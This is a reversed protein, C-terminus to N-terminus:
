SFTVKRPAEPLQVAQRFTSQAQTTQGLDLQAKGLRNLINPDAPGRKLTETYLRISEEPDGKEYAIRAQIEYIDAQNPSQELSRKMYPAANDAQGINYYASGLLAHSLPDDPYKQIFQKAVALAESKLAASELQYFAIDSAKQPPVSETLNSSSDTNSQNKGLLSPTCFHSLLCAVLAWLLRSSFPTCNM